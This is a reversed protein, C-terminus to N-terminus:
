ETRPAQAVTNEAFVATETISPKRRNKACAAATQQKAEISGAVPRRRKKSKRAKSTNGGKEKKEMDTPSSSSKGLNRDRYILSNYKDMGHKIRKRANMINSNMTGESMPATKAQSPDLNNRRRQLDRRFNEQSVAKFYETSHTKCLDWWKLRMPNPATTRLTWLYKFDLSAEPDSFTSREQNSM